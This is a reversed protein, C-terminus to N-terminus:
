LFHFYDAAPLNIRLEQSGGAYPAANFPWGILQM